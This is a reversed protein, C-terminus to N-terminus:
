NSYKLGPLGAMIRLMYYNVYNPLTRKKYFLKKDDDNLTEYDINDPCEVPTNGKECVFEIWIDKYDNFSFNKIIFSKSLYSMWLHLPIHSEKIKTVITRTCNSIRKYYEDSLEDVNDWGDFFDDDYCYPCMCFKCLECQEKYEDECVSCEDCTCKTCNRGGGCGVCCVKEIKEEIWLKQLPKNDIMIVNSSDDYYAKTLHELFDNM